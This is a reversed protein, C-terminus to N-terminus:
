IRGAKLSAKSDARCAEHSYHLHIPSFSLPAGSIDLVCLSLLVSPPIQFSTTLSPTILPFILSHSHCIFFSARTFSLFPSLHHVSTLCLYSLLFLLFFQLVIHFCARYTHVNYVTYIYIYIYIYVCIYVCVICM